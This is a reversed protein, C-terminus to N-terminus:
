DFSSASRNPRRTALGWSEFNLGARDLDARLLGIDGNGLDFHRAVVLNNVDGDDLNPRGFALLVSCM